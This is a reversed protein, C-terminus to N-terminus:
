FEIIFLFGYIFVLKLSVYSAPINTLIRPIFYPSIRRENKTSIKAGADAISEVDPVCTGSDLFSSM